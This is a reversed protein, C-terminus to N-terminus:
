ASGIADITVGPGTVRPGCAYSKGAVRDVSEIGFNGTAPLIDITCQVVLAPPLPM